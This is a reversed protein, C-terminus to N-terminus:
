ADRDNATLAHDLPRQLCAPTLDSLCLLHSFLSVHPHDCTGAQAGKLDKMTELVDMHISLM